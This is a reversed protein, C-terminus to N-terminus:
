RNVKPTPVQFSWQTEGHFTRPVNPDPRVTHSRVDTVELHHTICGQELLRARMWAEQGSKRADTLTDRGEQRWMEGRCQGHTVVAQVGAKDLSVDAIRTHMYM